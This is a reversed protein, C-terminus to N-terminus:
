SGPRITNLRKGRNVWGQGDVLEYCGDDREQEGYRCGWRGVQGGANMIRREELYGLYSDWAVSGDSNKKTCWINNDNGLLCERPEEHCSAASYPPQPRSAWDDRKPGCRAPVVRPDKDATAGGRELVTIWGPWPDVCDTPTNWGTSPSCCKGNKAWVKGWARPGNCVWAASKTWKPPDDMFEAYRRRADFGGWGGGGGSGRARVLALAAALAAVMAVWALTSRNSAFWTRPM